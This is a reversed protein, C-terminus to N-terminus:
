AEDEFDDDDAYWENLPEQDKVRRRRKREIQNMAEEKIQAEAALFERTLRDPVSHLMRKLDGETIEPIYFLQTKISGWKKKTMNEVCEETADDIIKLSNLSLQVHYTDAYKIVTGLVAKCAADSEGENAIRGCLASGLVLATEGISVYNHNMITRMHTSRGIDGECNICQLTCNKNNSLMRKEDAAQRDKESQRERKSKDCRAMFEAENLQTIIKLAQAMMMEGQRNEMERQEVSDSVVLLVSKSGAARARGRKQVESITTGTMNYKIILNCAQVDVGEEMVSTAVMVKLKGDKFDEMTRAQEQVTQSAQQGKKKSGAGDDPLQVYKNLEDKYKQVTSLRQCNMAGCLRYIYECVNEPNNTMGGTGLSATLGVIQPKTHKYQHVMDMLVNYASEKTTHHCEDLMVMTLDCLYIREARRVSKLMNILLQPTIVILHAGLLLKRRDDEDGITAAGHLGVVLYRGHFFQKFANCQQEVLPVKPVVFVVRAARGEREASDFHSRAIHAAVYTKGAGTPAVIVANKGQCAHEALEHQYSRLATDTGYPAGANDLVWTDYMQSKAEAQPTCETAELGDEAVEEVFDKTAAQIQMQRRVEYNIAKRYESLFGDYSRPKAEIKDIIALVHFSAVIRMLFKPDNERMFFKVFVQVWPAQPDIGTGHAAAHLEPSVNELWSDVLLTGEETILLTHLMQSVMKFCNLSSAFRLREAFKETNPGLMSSFAMIHGVLKNRDRFLLDLIENYFLRFYALGNPNVQYGGGSTQRYSPFAVTAVM